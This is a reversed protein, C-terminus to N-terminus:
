SNNQMKSMSSLIRLMEEETRAFSVELIKNQLLNEDKVTNVQYEAFSVVDPFKKQVFSVLVKRLARLEGELMGEERGEERGELHGKEHGEQWIQQYGPTERMIDRLM